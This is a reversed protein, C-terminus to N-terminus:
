GCGGAPPFPVSGRAVLDTWGFGRVIGMLVRRGLDVNVVSRVLARREPADCVVIGVGLSGTCGGHRCRVLTAGEGLQIALRLGALVGVAVLVIAIASLRPEILLGPPGGIPLSNVLVAMLRLAVAGALGARDQARGCDELSRGFQERWVPVTSFSSEATGAIRDQEVPRSIRVAIRRTGGNSEIVVFAELPRDITEPLEFEIPVDTQDITAFPRGDHEPRLRLRAYWGARDTGDFAFTPLGRQHDTVGAAYGRRWDGRLHSSLISMWSPSALGRQRCGPWGTTSNITLRDVPWAWPVLDPRHIRRLYDSLRGSTLEDRLGPWSQLAAVLFDDWTRCQAGGAVSFPTSLRGHSGPSPPPMPAAAPIATNARSTPIATSEKTPAVATTGQAVTNEGSVLGNQKVRLQVGGLQIVDGAVLRRSHGTLLRQQNVFTGGPSDLDRVMLDKTTSTITAHRAAMKRPSNGEQEALDLGRM